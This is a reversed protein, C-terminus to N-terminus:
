ATTQNGSGEVLDIAVDVTDTGTGGSVSVGITQGPAVTPRTNGSEKEVWSTSYGTKTFPTATGNVTVTIVADADTGSSKVRIAAVAKYGNFVLDQGDNEKFTTSAIAGGSLTFRDQITQRNLEGFGM